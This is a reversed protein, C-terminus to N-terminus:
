ESSDEGDSAVGKVKKAIITLVMGVGMGVCGWIWIVLLDSIINGITNLVLLIITGGIWFKSQSWVFKGMFKEVWVSLANRLTWAVIIGILMAGIGLSAFIGGEEKWFPYKTLVAYCPFAIYCVYALVLLSRYIWTAKSTM